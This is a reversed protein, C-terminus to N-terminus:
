RSSCFKTVLNKALPSNLEMPALM